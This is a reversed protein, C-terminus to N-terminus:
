VNPSFYLSYPVFLTRGEPISRRTTRQFDVSM